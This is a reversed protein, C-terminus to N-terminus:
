NQSTKDIKEKIAQSKPTMDLFGCGLRLDCLNVDINEESYKIAKIRKSLRQNM